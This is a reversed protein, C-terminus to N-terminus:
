PRTPEPRPSTRIVCAGHSHFHVFGTAIAKWDEPTQPESLYIPGLRKWIASCVDSVIEAATSKGVRWHKHIVGYDSGTALHHLTLALKLDPKLALRMHTDQKTIDDNILLLIHDFSEKSM